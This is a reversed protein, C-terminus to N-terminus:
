GIKGASSGAGWARAGIALDVVGIALALWSLAGGNGSLLSLTAAVTVIVGVALYTVARRRGSYWGRSPDHHPVAAEASRDSRQLRRVAELGPGDDVTGDFPADTQGDYPAYGTEEAVIRVVEGVLTHFSEPDDQEWYPFAVSAQGDFLEVQLGTEVVSLEAILSTLSASGSDESEVGREDGVDTRWVEVQGELVGSLRSEIRDWIRVMEARGRPDPSSYSMADHWSQDPRRRVLTIDYSM